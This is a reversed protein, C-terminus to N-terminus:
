ACREGVKELALGTGGPHVQSQPSGAKEPARDVRGGEVRVAAVEVLGFVEECGLESTGFRVGGTPEPGVSAPFDAVSGVAKESVPVLFDVRIQEGGVSVEAGVEGSGKRKEDAQGVPEAIGDDEDGEEAGKPSGTGISM